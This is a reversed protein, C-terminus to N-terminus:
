AAPTQCSTGRLLCRRRRSGCGGGGASRRPGGQPREQRHAQRQREEGGAPADAPPLRSHSWRLAHWPNPATHRCRMSSHQVHSIRCASALACSAIFRLLSQTSYGFGRVQKKAQKRVKAGKVKTRLQSKVKTSDTMQLLHWAVVLCSDLIPISSAQLSCNRQAKSPTEFASDTHGRSHCMDLERIVAWRAGRLVGTRVVGCSSAVEMGHAEASIRVRSFTRESAVAVSCRCDRLLPVVRGARSCAQGTLM